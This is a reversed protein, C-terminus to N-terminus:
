AATKKKAGRKKKKKVEESIIVIGLAKELKAITELTLNEKGKVIKSIQQPTVGMRQALDKQSLQQEDLAQLVRVAIVASKILWDHNADRWKAGELWAASHDESLEQLKKVIDKM